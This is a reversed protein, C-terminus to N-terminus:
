LLNSYFQEKVEFVNLTVFAEVNLLPAFVSLKLKIDKIEHRQSWSLRRKLARRSGLSTELDAQLGPTSFFRWTLCFHLNKM